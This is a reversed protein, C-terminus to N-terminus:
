ITAAQQDLWTDITTNNKGLIANAETADIDEDQKSFYEFFPVALKLQGNGSVAAFTKALWFPMMKAKVKPHFRDCFHQLAEKMTLTDPGFNYFLKNAAAETRFARSVQAAYDTAALWHIKMPQNGVLAARGNQVFQPLTEFFWSPRMVTYKVGSEILAREAKVKADMFIIDVEKGRSAATSINMIRKVGAQSAAKALNATGEIEIKQYKVPDLHASLNIYVYDQGSMTVKLTGPKTVDAEIIEFEDAFMQEAKKRNSTMVSVQFGDEQLRQAVPQGLM